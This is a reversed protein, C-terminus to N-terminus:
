LVEWWQKCAPQSYGWNMERICSQSFCYPAVNVSRADEWWKRKSYTAETRIYDMKWMGLLLYCNWWHNAMVCFAIHTGKGDAPGGIGSLWQWMKSAIQLMKDEPILNQSQFDFYLHNLCFPKNREWMFVLLGSSTGSVPSGPEELRTVGSDEVCLKWMMTWFPQELELWWMLMGALFVFSYGKGKLIGGWFQM